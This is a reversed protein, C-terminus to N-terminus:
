QAVIDSAYDSWGTATQYATLSGAPVYIKRGPANNIFIDSEITPPTTANVTVSILNTCSRFAAQDINKVTDPITVSTLSRCGYFACFGIEQVIPPINVSILSNCDEFTSYGIYGISGPLIVSELTDQNYFAWEIKTVPGDFTITGMDQQTDYVNSVINAGFDTMYYFSTIAQSNTTIYYIVGPVDAIIYPNYNQWRTATKYTNLSSAPVAIIRGPAEGYFASTGLTPPTSRKVYIRDLDSANYFANNGISTVSSPITIKEMVSVNQFAGVTISTVSSPINIGNKKMKRGYFANNGITTVTNPIVTNKCGLRLNNTTVRIIANCGNRSDFYTNNPDVTISEINSCGNYSTVDISTVASPININKLYICGQFASAGISTVGEPIDIESIIIDKFANNGITTVTGDFTMVGIGTAYSNSVLNAGFSAGSTPNVAINSTTKYFITDLGYGVIDNEYASFTTKYAQLGSSPVYILRGQANNNFIGSGATTPPTSKKFIVTLLSSCGAFAYGGIYNVYQPITVSTLNTCSDFSRESLQTVSYPINVSTIGTKAFAYSYIQEVTDPIIISTLSTIGYFAYSMISTTGPYIVTNRCGSYLWNSSKTYIANSNNDTYTANNSDVTIRTLNNCGRFPQPSYNMSTLSAPIHISTLGSDGFAGSQLDTISNPLTISTLSSCNRFADSKIVNLNQSLTISSLSTCGKFSSSGIETISDLLTITSLTTSNLMFNAPIKTPPGDFVIKGVGGSYTNSVVNAGYDYGYNIWISQGDTSTYYIVNSSPREWVLENGQYARIFNDSNRYYIKDATWMNVM